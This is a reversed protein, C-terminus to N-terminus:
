PKASQTLRLRASAKKPSGAPQRRSPAVDTVRKLITLGVPKNSVHQIARECDAAERALRLERLRVTKQGQAEREKAQDSLREANQRERQASLEEAKTRRAADRTDSFTTM